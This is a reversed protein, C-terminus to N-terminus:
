LENEVTIPEPEKNAKQRKGTKVQPAEGEEKKPTFSRAFSKAKETLRIHEADPSSEIRWRRFINVEDDTKPEESTVIRRRQYNEGKNIWNSPNTVVDYEVGDNDVVKCQQFTSDEQEFSYEFNIKGEGSIGRKSFHTLEKWVISEKYMPDNEQLENRLWLVGNNDEIFDSTAVFNEGDQEVYLGFRMNIFDIMDDATKFGVCIQETEMRKNDQFGVVDKNESQKNKLMLCCVDNKGLFATKGEHRSSTGFVLNKM